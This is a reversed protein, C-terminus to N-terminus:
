CVQSIFKSCQKQRSIFVLSKPSKITGQLRVIFVLTHPLGLRHWDPRGTCPSIKGKVIGCHGLIAEVARNCLRMCFVSGFLMFCIYKLSFILDVSAHWPKQLLSTFAVHSRTFHWYVIGADEQWPAAPTAPYSASAAFWLPNKKWDSVVVSRCVRMSYSVCSYCPCATCFDRGRGRERDRGGERRNEREGLGRGLGM